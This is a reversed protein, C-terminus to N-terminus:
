VFHKLVVALVFGFVFLVFGFRRFFSGGFRRRRVFFLRTSPNLAPISQVGTNCVALAEPSKRFYLQLLGFSYFQLYTYLLM